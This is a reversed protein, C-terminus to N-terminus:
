MVAHAIQGAQDGPSPLNQGHTGSGHLPNQGGQHEFGMTQAVEQGAGVGEKLLLHGLNDLEIQVRGTATPHQTEILLGVDLGQFAQVRGQGQPRSQDFPLLKLIEAM